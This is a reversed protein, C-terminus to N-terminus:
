SSKGDNRERFEKIALVFNKLEGGFEELCDDSASDHSKLEEELRRSSNMLTTAGFTGSLGAINHVLRTAQDLDDNDLHGRLDQDAHGYIEIFDATLTILFQIDGGHSELAKSFDAGRIRLRDDVEVTSASPSHSGLIEKLTNYMSGLELPKTLYRDFGASMAADIETDLVGASLAIVFSYKLDPNARIKKITEIGDMVPMRIDMMIIPFDRHSLLELAQSGDNAVTVNMGITELMRKAMKQNIENDEVLLVEAAPLMEPTTTIRSRSVGVADPLKDVVVSFSFTSGEGLKSIVTLTGDMMEALKRSISLGLGTGTDSPTTNGQSFSEFISELESEDIGRGSDKVSFLIRTRDNSLDEESWSVEVSGRDTFKIANSVLNILVQSIRIADGLYASQEKSGEEPLILELRKEEAALTFLNDLDETVTLLQFPALEIELKGSEVRSLDLIDNVVRLLHNSANRITLLNENQEETLGTGLTLDTYGIIANMPTRIEHSMNALFRSKTETAAEAILRAQEAEERRKREAIDVFAGELIHHGTDENQIVQGSVAVWSTEGSKTMVQTEFDIIRGSEKLRDQIVSFDEPDVFFKSIKSGLATNLETASDYGLLTLAAPNINTLNDDHDVEFIGEVANEYLSLYKNRSDSLQQYLKSNELAIAAQSALLKLVSVRDQTFANTNANNEMYLIGTLHSQSRIPVCIISQPKERLIYEDQTFIDESVANNLVQDEQTRAVYQIVSVPVETSNEIPESNTRHRTDNNQMWTTIEVSLQDETNLILSAKHGGANILAVQMLRELLKELRIEGALVQSARTVTELDLLDKDARYVFGAGSVNGTEPQSVLDPFESYLIHVKTNAGWRRYNNAAHNLYHQALEHRDQSRHFRGSLESALAIDNLYGSQKAKGIAQEYYSLANLVNGGAAALEAKILSYRHAINSPSHHAWKRLLRLNRYIRIRLKLAQVRSSKKLAWICALSELFRFFPIAPTAQVGNLHLLAENAYEIAKDNQCFIIALYLKIIFLNALASDDVKLEQYQLLSNEDVNPGILLWPSETPSLLNRVAQLYICSMHYMPIQQHSKAEAAHENLKSEISNLDHGLVFANASSSVAAILAYEVDQTEMGIHYADALPELTSNLHDKWSFNFNHALTLTKCHLERNDRSLNELAMQGLRCGFDIMGLYAIFVSGLAPFAFSSEPAMGHKFSTYAMELVIRSIGPNGSVYAAHSMIMLIKMAALHQEDTMAPLSFENRRSMRWAYILVQLGRGITKPSVPGTLHVDLSKLAQEATEMAENLRSLSILSRIKIEIARARDLPSRAHDLIVNILLDLQNEDGCLYAANAAELHTDLSRDYQVWANQGLLAIATRFYKFAMRFAAADKARYGATTNLQALELQDIQSTGPVEFSNNLQNVIDFIRNEVNGRAMQLIAQGISAHIKRKERSEIMGYATQQVREHAFRFLVRKDRIANENQTQLVYGQQITSSLKTATDSLSVGSVIQILELDFEMGICAAIQLIKISDADLNQLQHVLTLGVNESPSESSIGQVDWTWERHRRDFLILEKSYLRTLFEKIALPNGNTKEEVLIAFDRTEEESRYLTESVMRNVAASSLNELRLLQIDPNHELLQGMRLRNPDQQDLSYARYAGTLMVHDLQDSGFLDEFLDISASDIWQLNDLSVVLPSDAGCVSSLFAIISRALRPKADAQSFDNAQPEHGLITGLEPALSLLPEEIGALSKIIVEKKRAFDRRSMLQRVLDNLAASLATYPVEVTIPNNTGKTFYGGRCITEKELEHLLSSKGVGNEGVCFLASSGGMAVKDLESLVKVLHSDRELLRESINLQEPIDDLALEFDVNIENRAALELFRELDQIIAVASQYRDEPLKSMLKLTIKSLSKPILGNIREPSKPTLAMHQYILELSDESVFPLHGTLLQYLTVGLSYFDSRFDISRNMRGTQEPSLYALTGEFMRNPEPKLQLPTIM